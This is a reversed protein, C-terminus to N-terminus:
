VPWGLWDFVGLMKFAMYFMIAVFIYRLLRAQLKHATIAGVQVMIASTVVLLLWSQLNVYGVSYAPLDAVGIGGWIYGTVGGISTLIIMALSTAIANHMRFRFVTALLPVVLVGGGIGVLGTTFGIPLAWAAYQWLKEAPEGETRPQGSVLMRVAAIIVIAGFAVKLAEGPLQTALTAGGFSGALSFSGMILATRWWVVGMRHHRWTGSIATTFAVLLNTGFALKIAMDSAIGMSTYVMYQVPGMIFAGGVGLLGGAFGTVAGTVLLIVIHVITM